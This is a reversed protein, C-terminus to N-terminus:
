TASPSGGYSAPRWRRPCLAPAKQSPVTAGDWLPRVGVLGLESTAELGLVGGPGHSGGRGVRGVGYGALAKLHTKNGASKNILLTM